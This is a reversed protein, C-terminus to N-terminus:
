NFVKKAKREHWHLVKSSNRKRHENDDNEEEEEGFPHKPKNFNEKKGLKSKNAQM